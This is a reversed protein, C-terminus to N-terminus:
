LHTISARRDKGCRFTRDDGRTEEENLVRFANPVPRFAYVAAIPGFSGHVCFLFFRSFRAERPFKRPRVTARLVGGASV